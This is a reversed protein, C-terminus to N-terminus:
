VNQIYSNFQVTMIKFFLAKIFRILCVSAIASFFIHYKLIALHPSPTDPPQLQM